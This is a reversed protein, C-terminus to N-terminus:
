LSKLIDKNSEEQEKNHENEFKCIKLINNELWNM